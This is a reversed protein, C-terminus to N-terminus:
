HIVVEVQKSQEPLLGYHDWHHDTERVAGTCGTCVVKQKQEWGIEPSQRMAVEGVTCEMTGERWTEQIVKGKEEDNGSVLM